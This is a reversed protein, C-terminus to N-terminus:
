ADSGEKRQYNHPWPHDWSKGRQELRFQWRGWNAYIGWWTKGGVGLAKGVSFGYLHGPMKRHSFAIMRLRRVTNVPGAVSLV